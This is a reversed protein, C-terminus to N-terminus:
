LRERGALFKLLIMEMLRFKLLRTTRKKKSLDDCKLYPPKGVIAQAKYSRHLSASMVEIYIHVGYIPM